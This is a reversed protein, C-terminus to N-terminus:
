DTVRGEVTRGDGSGYSSGSSSSSSSNSSSNDSSTYNDLSTDTNIMETFRGEIWKRGVSDKSGFLAMGIGLVIAVLVITIVTMSVEGTAEKM